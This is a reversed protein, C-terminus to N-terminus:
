KTKGVEEKKFLDQSNNIAYQVLDLFDTKNMGNYSQHSALQEAIWGNRLLGDLPVVKDNKLEYGTIVAYDKGEDEYRLFMVYESGVFPM